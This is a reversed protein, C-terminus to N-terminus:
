ERVGTNGDVDDLSTDFDIDEMYDWNWTREIVGIDIGFRYAWLMLSLLSGTGSKIQIYPWSAYDNFSVSAQLLAWHRNHIIQVYWEDGYDVKHKFSILKM